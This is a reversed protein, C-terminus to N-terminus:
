WQHFYTCKNRRTRWDASIQAQFDASFSFMFTCVLWRSQVYILFRLLAFHFHKAHLLVEDVCECHHLMQLDVLLILRKWSWQPGVSVPWKRYWCSSECRCFQFSKAARKYWECPMVNCAFILTANGYLRVGFLEVCSKQVSSTNTSESRHCRFTFLCSIEAFIFLYLIVSISPM